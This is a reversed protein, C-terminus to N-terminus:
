PDDSRWGCQTCRKGRPWFVFLPASIMVFIFWAIVWRDPISDIEAQVEPSPMIRFLFGMAIPVGFIALWVLKFRQWGKSRPLLIRDRCRCAPCIWANIFREKDTEQHDEETAPANSLIENAAVM